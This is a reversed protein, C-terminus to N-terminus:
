VRKYACKIVVDDDNIKALLIKYDNVWKQFDRFNEYAENSLTYKLRKIAYVNRIAAEWEKVKGQGEDIPVGVKNFKNQALFNSLKL